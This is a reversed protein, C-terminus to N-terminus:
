SKRERYYKIIDKISEELSISPEWGCCDKIKDNCGVIEKNELPRIFTKDTIVTPRVGTIRGIIDVVDILRYGIGSCVNYIEGVVGHELLLTYAKVVDRVDTFDRVVDLDGAKIVVERKGMREARVFQSILKPIVFVEKQYRGIHNFSRTMVIRMGYGQTFVLSLMEQSVRAVAYPSTPRLVNTEVLPLCEKSVCGYEESSGVSLIKSKPSFKRVAEVLNLFINTNNIFSKTPHKWSNAVSSFSALHVIFDPKSTRILDEIAVCDLLNILRIDFELKRKLFRTKPEVTDIGIVKDIYDISSFYDLIYHAVFGSAGTVICTKM